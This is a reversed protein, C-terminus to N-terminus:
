IFKSIDADPHANKFAMAETLSMKKGPSGSTTKDMFFGPSEETAFASPENKQLTEMWEKGGTFEGGDLKFEKALFDARISNKVRDSAFNYGSLFKDAASELQLQQLEGQLKATDANYKEEWDKTAKQIKEVDLGEFSKLTEGAIKLQGQVSILETEIKAYDAAPKYTKDLEATLQQEQEENITIDPFMKKFLAIM